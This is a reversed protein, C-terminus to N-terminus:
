VTIGPVDMIALSWVSTGSHVTPSCYGLAKVMSSDSEDASCACHPPPNPSLGDQLQRSVTGGGGPVDEVDARMLRRYSRSWM